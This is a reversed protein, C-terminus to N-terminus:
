QIISYPKNIVSQHHRTRVSFRRNCVSLPPSHIPSSFFSDQTPLYYLKMRDVNTAGLNVQDSLRLAIFTSPSIQHILRCPDQYKPRLKHTIVNNQVQPSPLQVWVLDGVVFTRSSTNKDYHTNQMLKKVESYERVFDYAARLNQM